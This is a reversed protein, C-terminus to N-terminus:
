PLIARLHQWHRLLWGLVGMVGGFALTGRRTHWLWYGSMRVVKGLARDFAKVEPPDSTPRDDTM